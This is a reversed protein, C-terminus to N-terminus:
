PMVQVDAQSRPRIQALTKGGIVQGDSLNSGDDIYFFKPTTVSDVYTVRGTARRRRLVAQHEERAASSVGAM